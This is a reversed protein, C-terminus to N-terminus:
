TRAYAALLGLGTTGITNPCSGGNAGCASSGVQFPWGGDANQLNKLRSGGLRAADVITPADAIRATVTVSSTATGVNGLSDKFRFTVPTPGPPLLTSTAVPDVTTTGNVVAQTSLATPAPDRMDIATAGSLFAALAQSGASGTVNGRAGDIQTAPV